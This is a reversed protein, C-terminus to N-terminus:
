QTLGSRVDPPAIKQMIICNENKHPVTGASWFGDNYYVKDNFPLLQFSGDDRELLAHRRDPITEYSSKFEILMLKKEEHYLWWGAPEEWNFKIKGGEAQPFLKIRNMSKAFVKGPEHRGAFECWVFETGAM